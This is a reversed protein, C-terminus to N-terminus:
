KVILVKHGSLCIDYGGIDGVFRKIEFLTINGNVDGIGLIIPDIEIPVIEKGRFFLDFIVRFTNLFHNAGREFSPFVSQRMGFLDNIQDDFFVIGFKGTLLKNVFGSHGVLHDQGPDSRETRYGRLTIFLNGAYIFVDTQGFQRHVQTREDVSARIICLM